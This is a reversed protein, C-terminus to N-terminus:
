KDVVGTRLEVYGKVVDPDDTDLWLSEPQAALWKKVATCFTKNVGSHGLAVWAAAKPAFVQDPTPPPPKPAAAPIM